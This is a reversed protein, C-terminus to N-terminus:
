RARPLFCLLETATGPPNQTFLSGDAYVSNAELAKLEHWAHEPVTTWGVRQSWIMVEANPPHGDLLLWCYKEGWGRRNSSSGWRCEALLDASAEDLRIELAVKDVPSNFWRRVLDFHHRAHSLKRRGGPLERWARVEDYGEGDPWVGAQETGGGEGAEADEAASFVRAVEWLSGVVQKAVSPAVRLLERDLHSPEVDRILCDLLIGFIGSKPDAWEEGLGQALLEARLAASLAATGQGRARWAAAYARGAPHREVRSQRMRRM